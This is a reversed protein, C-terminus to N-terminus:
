HPDNSTPLHEGIHGILWRSESQEWLLHIRIDNRFLKIHHTMVVDSGCEPDYFTRAKICDPRRKTDESEDSYDISRSEFWKVATAGLSGTSQRIACEDLVNFVTSFAEARDDFNKTYNSKATVVANQLFRLGKLNEEAKEVAQIVSTLPKRRRARKSSRKSGSATKQAAEQQIQMQRKIQLLESEARDAKYKFGNVQKLAADYKAKKVFEENEEADSDDPLSATIEKLDDVQEELELIRYARNDLEGKLRANESEALELLEKYTQEEQEVTELLQKYTEEDQRNDRLQERYTQMEQEKSALEAALSQREALRVYAAVDSYLRGGFWSSLHFVCANRLDVWIDDGIKRLLNENWFQHDWSNAEDSCGPLYVRIAGSFCALHRLEKSVARETDNDYAFVRALGLLRSQLFDPNVLHSGNATPSVVLIPLKRDPNFVDDHVFTHASQEKVEVHETRIEEGEFRCDFLKLIHSLVSPPRARRNHASMDMSNDVDGRMQVDAEVSEGQTSLRFNLNWGNTLTSSLGFFGTEGLEGGDLLLTESENKWEGNDDGITPLRERTWERLVGEVDDLLELGRRDERDITFIARYYEAM